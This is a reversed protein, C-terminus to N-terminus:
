GALVSSTSVIAVDSVAFREETSTSSNSTDKDGKLFVQINGCLCSRAISNDTVDKNMNLPLESKDQLAIAEGSPSLSATSSM